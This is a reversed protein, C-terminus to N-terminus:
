AEPQDELAKAIRARVENFDGIVHVYEIPGSRFFIDAGTVGEFQLDSCVCDVDEPEIFTPMTEFHEGLPLSFWRTFELKM